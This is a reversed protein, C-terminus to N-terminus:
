KGDVGLSSDLTVLSSKVKEVNDQWGVWMNKLEGELLENEKEISDLEKLLTNQYDLKM